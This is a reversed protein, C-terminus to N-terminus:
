VIMQCMKNPKQTNQCINLIQVLNHFQLFDYQLELHDKSNIKKFTVHNEWDLSVINDELLPFKKYRRHEYTCAGIFFDMETDNM